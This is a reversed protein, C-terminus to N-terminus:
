KSQSEAETIYDLAKTHEELTIAKVELSKTALQRAEDFRGEGVISMMDGFFLESASPGESSATAPEDAPLTQQKPKGTNKPKTAKKTAQKKEAQTAVDDITEAVSVPDEIRKPEMGPEIVESFDFGYSPKKGLADEGDLAIAEAAVPTLPLYKCLRRVVTKKAMEDYDTVWPGNDKAKSRSRIAEIEDMDMVEFQTFDVLDGDANKAVYTAVAYYAVVPAKSDRKYGHAIREETGQLVEFQEDERVRRAVIKQISGSRRALEMLGRYGIILQCTQKYPILYAHGREDIELNLKIASAVSSFLTLKTCNLLTPNAQIAMIAVQCFRELSVERGLCAQLQARKTTFLERIDDLKQQASKKEWPIANNSRPQTALQNM